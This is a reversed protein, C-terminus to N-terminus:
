RSRPDRFRRAIPRGAIKELMALSASSALSEPVVRSYSNTARLIQELAESPKLGRKKANHLIRVWPTALNLAAASADAVPLWGAADDEDNAYLYGIREGAPTEIAVHRVAKDTHRAYRPPGGSIRPQLDETMYGPVFGPPRTKASM